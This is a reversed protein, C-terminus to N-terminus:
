DMIFRVSNGQAKKAPYSNVHRSSYSISIQMGYIGEPVEIEDQLWYNVHQCDGVFGSRDVIQQENFNIARFGVSSANFGTSNNDTDGVNKYGPTGTILNNSNCWNNTAMSEAETGEYNGNEIHGKLLLWDSNTPVKWGDPAFNKNPTNEDDDHIGMIAYWNYLKELNSSENKYYCWAGTELSVWEAYDTVQPIPTGDSYTEIDVNEIAWTQTGLTVTEYLNQNKGGEDNDDSSDCSFIIFITISLLLLKKM